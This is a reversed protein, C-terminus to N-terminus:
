SPAVGVACADRRDGRGGRRRDRYELRLDGRRPQGRGDHIGRGRRPGGPRSARRPHGGGPGGRTRSPGEGPRGRREPAATRTRPRPGGSGARGDPPRGRADGLRRGEGPVSRVALRTSAAAARGRRRRRRARGHPLRPLTAALRLDGSTRDALRLTAVQRGDRPSGISEVIMTWPGHGEPATVATRTRPCFRWACPSRSSASSHPM